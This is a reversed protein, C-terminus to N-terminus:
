ARFADLGCELTSPLDAILVDGNVQLYATVAELQDFSDRCFLFTALPNVHEGMAVGTPQRRHIEAGCGRRDIERVVLAYGDMDKGVFGPRAILASREGGPLEAFVAHRVGYDWVIGAPM